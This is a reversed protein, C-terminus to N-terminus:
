NQFEEREVFSLSLEDIMIMDICARRLEEKRSSMAVLSGSGGIINDM